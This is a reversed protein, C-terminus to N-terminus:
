AKHVTMQPYPIDWNFTSSAEVCWRQITRKLRGYLEAAEGSFDIIVAIDLSSAGAYNFEVRINLVTESYGEEEIRERIFKELAAPAAKAITSQMDYSFGVIEKLRFSTSINHPALNLFDGMLYTRLAGGREVMQVMEKSIGIVRGRREDSLIVWDGHKCPFWPEHPKTPRSSLGVLDDIPIRLQLGSTPNVLEIYFNIQNVLWPLGDIELREGERVAGINLFLQMQSWYRPLATRITWAAAFLVLIGLSFLVWDEVIYFVVMPGIIALMFSLVQHVLQILRVRFSRHKARFGPFVRRMGNAAMRSLFLVAGVVTFAIIIYLGRKQFFEKFYSQSAESLSVERAVLKDLQLQASQRDNELLTRQHAWQEQRGTLVQTLAESDSVDILIQLNKIASETVPLKDSYIELKERLASKSRMGSTMRKMEKLAPELLFLVESKLDFKSEIAGKLALIDQEAAIEDFTKRTAHLEERLQLEKNRLEVKGSESQSNRAAKAVGQIRTLLQEETRVIAKLTSITSSLQSQVIADPASHASTTLGFVMLFACLLYPALMKDHKFLTESMIMEIIQTFVKCRLFPEM